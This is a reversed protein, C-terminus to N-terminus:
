KATHTHQTNTQTYEHIFQDVVKMARKRNAKSPKVITKQIKKDIKNEEAPHFSFYCVSSSNHQTFIAKQKTVRWIILNKKKRFSVLFNLPNANEVLQKTTKKPSTPWEEETKKAGGM